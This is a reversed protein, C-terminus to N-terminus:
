QSLLCFVVLWIQTSADKTEMVSIEQNFREWYVDSVEGQNTQFIWTLINRRKIRQLVTLKKNTVNADNEARHSRLFIQVKFVSSDLTALEFSNLKVKFKSDSM